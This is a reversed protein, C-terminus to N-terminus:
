LTPIPTRVLSFPFLFFRGCRLGFGGSRIQQGFKERDNMSIVEMTKYHWLETVGGPAPDSAIIGEAIFLNFIALIRAPRAQLWQVRDLSQHRMKGAGDCVASCVNRALSQKICCLPQWWVESEPARLTALHWPSPRHWWSWLSPLLACWRSLREPERKCPQPTGHSHCCSEHASLLLRFGEREDGGKGKKGKRGQDAGNKGKEVRTRMLTNKRPLYQVRM